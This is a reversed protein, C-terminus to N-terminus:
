PGVFGYQAQQAYGRPDAPPMGGNLQQRQQEEQAALAEESDEDDYQQAWAPMAVVLLAAVCVLKHYFRMSSHYCAGCRVSSAMASSCCSLSVRFCAIFSLSEAVLSTTRMILVLIMSRRVELPKEPSTSSASTVSTM